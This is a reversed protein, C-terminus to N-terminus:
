NLLPYYLLKQAYIMHNEIYVLWNNIGVLIIIGAEIYFIMKISEYECKFWRELTMVQILISYFHGIAYIVLSTFRYNQSLNIAMYIIHTYLSLNIIQPLQISGKAKKVLLSIYLSYLSVSLCGKMLSRGFNGELIQEYNILTFVLFVLSALTINIGQIREERCLWEKPTKFMLLCVRVQEVPGCSYVELKKM